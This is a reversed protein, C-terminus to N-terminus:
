GPVHQGGNVPDRYGNPGRHGNATYPARARHAAGDALYVGADRGRAAQALGPQAELRTAGFWALAAALLTFLPYASRAPLSFRLGVTMVVAGGVAATGPLAGPWPGGTRARAAAVGISAAALIVALAQAADLAYHSPPRYHAAALPWARGFAGATLPGTVLIVSGAVTLAGCALRAGIRAADGPRLLEVLGWALWLPALLLASLQVARFTASSFGSAFAMSEAALAVTLALAAATWLITGPSPHRVARGGLLGTAVAAVLVGAFGILAPLSM